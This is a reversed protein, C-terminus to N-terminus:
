TSGRERGAPPRFAPRPSLEIRRVIPTIPEYAQLPRPPQLAQPDLARQWYGVRAAGLDAVFEANAHHMEKALRAWRRCHEFEYSMDVGTDRSTWALGFGDVRGEKVQQSISAARERLQEEHRRVEHRSMDGLEDSVVVTTDTAAAAQKIAGEGCCLL